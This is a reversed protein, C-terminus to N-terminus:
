NNFMKDIDDQSFEASDDEDLANQFDTNQNSTEIASNFLKDIDDQSTPGDDVSDNTQEFLKDIDVQSTPNDGDSRNTNGILESDSVKSAAYDDAFNEANALRIYEDVDNQRFSKSTISDIANPDFAIERHLKSIKIENNHSDIENTTVNSLDSNRFHKLISELKGQVTELLKNVAAIQQSTIDQVQLSMMIASSDANISKLIEQSNYTIETREADGNNKLHNIVNALEPLIAQVDAGSEIANYIIELVHVPKEYEVQSAKQMRTLNNALTQSNFVIGDVLDMIENTALETAETVKSLQKSASPMRQLNDRISTNIEKLLPEIESVFVFIEELFPIVNQGLVFLSRLEDAKRLLVKIEDGIM